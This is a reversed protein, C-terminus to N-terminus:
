RVVANTRVSKSILVKAEQFLGGYESIVDWMQCRGYVVDSVRLFLMPNQKFLEAIKKFFTPVKKYSGGEVFFWM